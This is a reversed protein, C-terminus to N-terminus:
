YNQQRHRQSRRRPLVGARGAVLGIFFGVFHAVNAVNAGGTLVTVVLAIVAFFALQARGSLGFLDVTDEALSNSALVYGAVALIAGSAGLAGAGRVLGVTWVQALGAVAGTTVFFAHYAWTPTRRELLFGFLLLIVANGLLHGLDAHSYISTVVTWPNLVVPVNLVFLFGFLPEFLVGLTHSIVFVGLFAALTQVTPSAALSRRRSM